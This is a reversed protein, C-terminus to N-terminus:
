PKKNGKPIKLSKKGYVRYLCILLIFYYVPYLSYISLACCYVFDM